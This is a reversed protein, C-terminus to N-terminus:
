KSYYITIEHKLTVLKIYISVKGTFICCTKQVAMDCCDHIFQFLFHLHFMFKETFYM